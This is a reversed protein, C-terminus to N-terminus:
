KDTAFLSAPLSAGNYLAARPTSSWAFRAASPASVEPASVIIENAEIRANAWYFPGNGAVAFVHDADGELRLGGYARDFTLRIANGERRWSRLRPGNSIVNQGYTQSLALRALRAGVEQKNGPHIDNQNGIDNLVAMAVGSTNESVRKQAWQLNPWDTDSPKDDPAGFSALQAIYFPLNANEFGARWDGILAPLLREYQAGRAINSEGQYWIVGKLGFPQLPAILGNFAATVRAGPVAGTLTASPLPAVKNSALSVRARWVGSLDIVPGQGDASQANLAGLVGGNGRADYVRVALVNAGAKVRAGPVLYVRANDRGAGQGVIAGNWFATDSTEIAGLNLKLDRGAASAPVQVVRRLWVVGVSERLPAWGGPLNLTKWSSDDFEARSWNSKTGEDNQLWWSNLRALLDANPNERLPGRFEGERGLAEVSMWAEIPTSAWSANILGIPVGLKQHLERGFFYGAASFPAVSAPSCAQWRADFGAQPSWSGNHPLNLLRIKPYNAASIEARKNNVNWNLSMEMNSQGSCLWVDGMLIDGRTEVRGSQATVTLTHPGGAGFSGLNATWRGEGDARTQASRGALTVAITEGPTATGWIKLPRDRQLVAGQSFLPSLAFSPEARALETLPPAAEVGSGGM